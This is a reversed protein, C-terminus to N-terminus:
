ISLKGAEIKSFDLIDNLITLLAEACRRVTGAFDRQEPTLRTDLLIDTMGIIGNMPTRIEHSMTSRFSWKHENAQRLDAVLPATPLALAAQDAIGRALMREAATFPANSQRAFHLAGVLEDGYRMTVFIGRHLGRNALVTVLPHEPDDTPLEFVESEMIRSIGPQELPVEFGLLPNGARDTAGWVGEIRILRQKHDHLGVVAWPAPFLRLS